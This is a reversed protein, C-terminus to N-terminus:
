RRRAVVERGRPRATVPAIFEGAVEPLPPLGATPEPPAPEPEPEDDPTEDDEADEPDPGYIKGRAYAAEVNWQMDLPRALPAAGKQRALGIRRWRTATEDDVNVAAGRPLFGMEVSYTSDNMILRPM